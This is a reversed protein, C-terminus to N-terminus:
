PDKRLISSFNSLAGNLEHGYFEHRSHLPAMPNGRALPPKYEGAEIEQAGIVVTNHCM